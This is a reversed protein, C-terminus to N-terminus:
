RLDQSAFHEVFGKVFEFSLCVLSLILVIFMGIFCYSFVVKLPSFQMNSSVLRIILLSNSKPFPLRPAISAM